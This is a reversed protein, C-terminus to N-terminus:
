SPAPVFKESKESTASRTSKGRRRRRCRSAHHRELLDVGVAPVGVQGADAGALAVAVPDVPGPVRGLPQAAVRGLQEEVGVGLRDLPRDVPVLRAEAVVDAVLVRAVVVVARRVHRLADDCLGYKSQPLSRGGARRARSPRDVLHVDLPEGGAVGVDGLRQAAGVGAEGVRRGDVVQGAEADGGDLQM